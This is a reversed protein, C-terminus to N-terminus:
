KPRQSLEINCTLPGQLKCNGIQRDMFGHVWEKYTNTTLLSILCCYQDVGAPRPFGRILNSENITSPSLPNSRVLLLSLSLSSQSRQHTLILILSLQLTSRPPELLSFSYNPITFELSISVDDIKKRPYYRRQLNVKAKWM